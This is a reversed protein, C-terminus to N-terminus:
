KTENNSSESRMVEGFRKITISKVTRVQFVEHVAPKDCTKPLGNLNYGTVVQCRKM